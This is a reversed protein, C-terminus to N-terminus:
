EEDEKYPEPLPMWAFINDKELGYGDVDSWEIEEDYYSGCKAVIPCDYEATSILVYKEGEPLRETVPIWESM